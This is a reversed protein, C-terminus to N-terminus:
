FGVVDICTCMRMTRRVGMGVKVYISQLEEAYQMFIKAMNPSDLVGENYMDGYFKNQFQVLRILTGLMARKSKDPIS